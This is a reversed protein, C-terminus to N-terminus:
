GLINRYTLDENVYEVSDTRNQKEGKYRQFISIKLLYDLKSIGSLLDDSRKLQLMVLSFIISPFNLVCFLFIILYDLFVYSDCMTEYKEFSIPEFYTAGGSKSYFRTFTEAVFVWVYATMAIYFYLIPRKSSQFEYRHYKHM